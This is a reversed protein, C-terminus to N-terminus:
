FIRKPENLESKDYMKWNGICKVLSSEPVLVLASTINIDGYKLIRKISALKFNGSVGRSEKFLTIVRIQNLFLLRDFFHPHLGFSDNKHRL